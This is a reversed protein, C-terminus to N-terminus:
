FKKEVFFKEAEQLATIKGVDLAKFNSPIFAKIRQNEILSIYFDTISFKAKDTKNLLDFVQPSLIQIGAFALKRYENINQLDAPKVQRTEINTWGRLIDEGDFLFYRQTRRCSVALTALANNKLHSDYLETLNINSLIDVNHVLFPKRDDFFWEAHRIGGGTDLLLKREDSIEIRIDFNNNRRLFDVIKDGFHHVNVIIENFGAGKLQLINRELLTVGKIEVLAKPINDTLPKLRQGLGAALIMAKM